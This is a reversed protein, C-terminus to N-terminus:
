ADALLGMVDWGNTAVCKITMTAGRLGTANLTGAVGHLTVGGAAVLSVPSSDLTQRLHIEVDTDFTSAPVTVVCGGSNTFRIYSNADGALLTYTSSAVTKTPPPAFTPPDLVLQYLPNGLGDTAAPDFTLASTHAINVLYVSGSDTLIDNPVYSHSPQFDGTFRWQLLPLTYPGLVSSDTMHVYLSTGIIQFYSIGVFTPATEITHVRGDLDTFNGDVESPTLNSGKVSRLIITM